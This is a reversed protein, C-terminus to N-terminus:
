VRLFGNVCLLRGLVVVPLMLSMYVIVCTVGVYCINVYIYKHSRIIWDLM